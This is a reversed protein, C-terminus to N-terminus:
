DLDHFKHKYVAWLFSKAYLLLDYWCVKTDVHMRTALDAVEPNMQQTISNDVCYSFGYLQFGILSQLM